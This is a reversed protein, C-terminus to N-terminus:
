ELAARKIRDRSVEDSSGLFEGLEYKAHKVTFINCLPKPVILTRQQKNKLGKRGWVKYQHWGRLRLWNGISREKFGTVRATQKLSMGLYVVMYSAMWLNNLQKREPFPDLDRMAAFVRIYRADLKFRRALETVGLLKPTRVVRVGRKRLLAKKQHQNVLLNELQLRVRTPYTGM